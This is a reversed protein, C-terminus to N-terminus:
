AMPQLNSGQRAWLIFGGCPPKKTRLPWILLMSLTQRGSTQFQKVIRSSSLHPIDVKPRYERIWHSGKSGMTLAGELGATNLKWRRHAGEKILSASGEITSECLNKIVFLVCTWTKWQFHVSNALPHISNLGYLILYKVVCQIDDAPRSWM